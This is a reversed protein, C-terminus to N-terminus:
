FPRKEAVIFAWEEKIKERHTYHPQNARTLTACLSNVAPTTTPQIGTGSSHVASKSQKHQLHCLTVVALTYVM